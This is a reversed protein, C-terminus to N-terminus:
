CLIFFVTRQLLRLIMTFKSDLGIMEIVILRLPVSLSLPGSYIQREVLFEDRMTFACIVNSSFLFLRLWTKIPAENVLHGDNMVCDGSPRKNRM